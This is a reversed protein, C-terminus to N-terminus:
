LVLEGKEAFDRELRGSIRRWHFVTESFADHTSRIQKIQKEIVPHITYNLHNISPGIEESYDYNIFTSKEDNHINIMANRLETFGMSRLEKFLVECIGPLDDPKRMGMAMTRVRELSAEMALEQNKQELEITRRKIADRLEINERSIKETAINEGEDARIDPMSSHLHIFKWQGEKKELFASVRFKAYFVWDGETLVYLDTFETIHVLSGLPEIKKVRNRIDLKGVIQDITTEIFHLADKKNDFVETEASGIQSFDDALQSAITPMDGILYSSWFTEYVQWAASEEQKSLTM